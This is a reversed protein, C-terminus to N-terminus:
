SISFCLRSEMFVRKSTRKEERAIEANLDEKFILYKDYQENTLVDQLLKELNDNYFDNFAMIKGGVVRHSQTAALLMGFQMIFEGMNNPAYGVTDVMRMAKIWYSTGTDSSTVDRTDQYIDDFDKIIAVLVDDTRTSNIDRLFHPITKIVDRLGSKMIDKSEVFNNATSEVIMDTVGKLINTIGATYNLYMFTMSTYRLLAGASVDLASNYKSFNFIRREMNNLQENANKIVDRPAVGSVGRENMLYKTLQYDTEFNNIARLNYLEQTFGKMVDVIDYSMVKAKYKKNELMVADNYHRIERLTSPKVTVPLKNNKDFWESFLEVIRAEYETYSESKYKKRINFVPIHKPVQLTQAKTVFRKTGDIDTYYRDKHIMPISVFQKASQGLTAQPIFPMVEDWRGYYNIWNGDYERITRQILNRITNLLKKNKIM